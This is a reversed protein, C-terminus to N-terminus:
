EYKSNEEKVNKKWEEDKENYEALVSAYLKEAESKKMKEFEVQGIKLTGKGIEGKVVNYELSGPYQKEQAKATKMTEEKYIILTKGQVEYEKDKVLYQDLGTQVTVTDNKGDFTAMNFNLVPKPHKSYVTNVKEVSYKGVWVTGRLGGGGCAALLVACVMAGIMAQVLRKM